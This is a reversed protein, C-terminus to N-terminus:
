TSVIVLAPPSMDIVVVPLPFTITFGNPFTPIPVVVGPNLSSTFPVNLAFLVTFNVPTIAPSAKVLLINPNSVPPFTSNISKDFM